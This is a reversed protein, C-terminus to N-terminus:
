QINNKIIRLIDDNISRSNNNYLRERELKLVEEIIARVTSPAQNIPQNIDDLSFNDQNIM